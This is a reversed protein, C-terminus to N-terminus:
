AFPAGGARLASVREEPLLLANTLHAPVSKLPALRLGPREFLGFSLERPRIEFPLYRDPFLGLLGRVDGVGRRTTDSVEIIVAPRCERLTRCLGRLVEVEYGEVDIKLADVRGVNADFYDDGNVVRLRSPHLSNAVSHDKVFSGTGLNADPPAFFPWEGDESGLAVEHVVINEIGNERVAHVLRERVPAYPEFAHVRAFHRSAFLSHVGVNAGVDAIPGSCGSDSLRRLLEQLEQEYGGYVYLNRDLWNGLTGRYRYGHLEIEFTRRSDRSRPGVVRVLRERIGRRLWGMRGVARALLFGSV